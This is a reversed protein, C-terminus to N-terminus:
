GKAITRNKNVIWESWSGAYLKSGQLQAHEMALVNHCATVGSGCYHVTEESKFNGLLKTFQDRLIDPSFFLGKEDLNQQFPRNLAYPIHGAVFDISEQEGRYREPTRADILRITKKAIETELQPANLFDNLAPYIRFIENKIKPLDTTIEYKAAQWQGIGGDLVAVNEHGLFRLLWWFRAAFAGNADDYVVIQTQNNIGWAGIKKSLQQANPLPHRGTQATVPSSLDTNINAYHANPIHGHRYLFAGLDPKALSFRCDVIVWNPNKLNEHVTKANILTKYIM